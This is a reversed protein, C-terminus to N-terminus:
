KRSTKRKRKNLKKSRKTRRRGGKMNKITSASHIKIRKTGPDYSDLAFIYFNYFEHVNLLKILKDFLDNGSLGEEAQFKFIFKGRQSTIHDADNITIEATYEVLAGGYQKRPM